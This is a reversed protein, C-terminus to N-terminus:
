SRLTSAITALFVGLFVKSLGQEAKWMEYNAQDEDSVRAVTEGTRTDTVTFTRDEFAVYEDCKNCSHAATATTFREGCDCEFPSNSLYSM